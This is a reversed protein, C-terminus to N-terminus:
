LKAAGPVAPPQFVPQGGAMAPLLQQPQVGGGAVLQWSSRVLPFSVIVPGVGDFIVAVDAFKAPVTATAGM